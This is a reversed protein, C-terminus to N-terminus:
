RSYKGGAYPDLLAVMGTLVQQEFPDFREGGPLFEGSADM